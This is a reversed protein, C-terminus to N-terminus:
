RGNVVDTFGDKALQNITCEASIPQPGTFMRDVAESVLPATALRKLIWRDVEPALASPPRPPQLMQNLGTSVVKGVLYKSVEQYAAVITRSQQIDGIVLTMAGFFADDGVKSQIANLVNQKTATDSVAMAFAAAQYLRNTQDQGLQQGLPSRALVTGQPFFLDAGTCSDADRLGLSTDIAEPTRLRAASSPAVTRANPNAPPAFSGSASAPVSATTGSPAPASPWGPAGSPPPSASPRSPSGGGSSPTAIPIGDIPPFTVPPTTRSRWSYRSVLKFQFQIWITRDPDLALSCFPDCKAPDEVRFSAIVRRPQGFDVERVLVRLDPEYLVGTPGVPQACVYANLDISWDTDECVNACTGPLHASEVCVLVDPQINKLGQTGRVFFGLASGLATDWSEGNPAGPVGVRVSEIVRTGREHGMLGLIEPMYDPDSARIERMIDVIFRMTHEKALKRAEAHGPREPGDKNIGPQVVGAQWGHRCKGLDTIESPDG